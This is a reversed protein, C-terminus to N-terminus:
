SYRLSGSPTPVSQGAPEADGAPMGVVWWAFASVVAAYLVALLWGPVPPDWLPDVLFGLTGHYGVTNRRLAQGFAAVQAVVVAIAVAGVLRGTPIDLRRDPPATAVSLALLVPVGLALPMSYRGQWFLGVDQAELTEFLVPAAVTVIAVAAAVLLFRRRWGVVALGALIALAVVWLAYTLDPAPADRWGFLGVMERLRELTKGFSLQLADHTALGRRGESDAYSPDLSGMVVIWTSQLVGALVVSAGWRRATRSAWLARAAPWGGTALLAIAVLALWPPSLQRSLVLALAAIGARRVLRTDVRSPAEVVLATGAMWLSLAASIEVASPNVTGGLFLLMPTVGILIALAGLRPRRLRELTACASAVFAATILVTVTRMLYVGLAGRELLSPLGAVAYYGPPHRGASTPLRVLEPDDRFSACAASVDAHFAYCRISHSADGYAKPADVVLRDEIESPVEEGVIQLRAVSAARIAHAPEDPAGFLPTALAWLSCLAAALLFTTWWRSRETRRASAVARQLRARAIVTRTM